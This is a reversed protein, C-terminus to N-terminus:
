PDLSPNLHKTPLSPHSPSSRRMRPRPASPFRSHPCEDPCHSTPTSLPWALTPSQPCAGGWGVGLESFSVICAACHLTPGQLYPLLSCTGALWGQLSGAGTRTPIGREYWWAAWILLNFIVSRVMLVFTCRNHASPQLKEPPPAGRKWRLM